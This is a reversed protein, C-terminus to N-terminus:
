RYGGRRVLNVKVGLADLQDILDNLEIDVASRDAEIAAIQPRLTEGMAGMQEIMGRYQVLSGNIVRLRDLALVLKSKLEGIPSGDALLKAKEKAQETLTESKAIEQHADHQVSM